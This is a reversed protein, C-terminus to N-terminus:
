EQNEIDFDLAGDFGDIDDEIEESTFLNRYPAKADNPIFKMLSKLDELKKESIPKGNPWLPIELEKFSNFTTPRGRKMQKQINVEVHQGELSTKMFISFPNAKKIEIVRTKLWSVPTKNVDKKRNTIIEEMKSTGVFDCRNMRHVILPNKKRCKQMVAIYDEPTYLRQQYKLASEIDGFDSDNPLFSHGPHLYKMTVKELSPHLEMVSKMMLVMKVNRNQGGCSDSWLILETVGEKVEELIFKRLCSGVEQAGRGAEGEVWVFCHGTKQKGSHIGLNYVCLQRKYYVLNTPIQPLPLTKELDFCLTELEPKRAAAEMDKKKVEQAGEALELHSNKENKLRDRDNEHVCDKILVELRDCTNCTDKKLKKRQLNFKTLFVQKYLSLSVPNIVEAKYLDYMKSLTTDPNLFERETSSRSYHSKYKPFKMIHEIVEQIRNQDLKNHGGAIGRMDRVGEPRKIAKLATDIKCSSIRFSQTFFSKCVVKGCVQYERSKKKLNSNKVRKRKIEVERVMTCILARQADHSDVSYFKKFEEKINQEGVRDFCNCRCMYQRFEKKEHLKGRQDMYDKNTICNKKRQQRNQEPFKRKRGKKPRGTNSTNTPDANINNDPEHQVPHTQDHAPINIAEEFDSPLGEAENSDDNTPLVDIPGYSQDEIEPVTESLEEFISTPSFFLRCQEPSSQFLPTPSSFSTSCNLPPSDFQVPLLETYEEHSSDLHERDNVMFIDSSVIPRGVSSSTTLSIDELRPSGISVTLSTNELSAIEPASANEPQGLKLPPSVKETLKNGQVLNYEQM